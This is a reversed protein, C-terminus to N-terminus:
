SPMYLNNLIRSIHRVVASIIGGEQAYKGQELARILICITVFIAAYAPPCPLSAGFHASTNFDVYIGILPHCCTSHAFIVTLFSAHTHPPNASPAAPQKRKGQLSSTHTNAAAATKAAESRNRLRSMAKRSTSSANPTAAPATYVPAYSWTSMSGTIRSSPSVM